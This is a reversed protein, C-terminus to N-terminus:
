GLLGLKRAKVAADERSVADIKFFINRVHWKVTGASLSLVRAISKNSYARAILHLIELERPSLRAPVGDPGPAQPEPARAPTERAGAARLVDDAFAREEASLGPGSAFQRVLNLAPTGEDLFSRLMRHQAAVALARRLTEFASVADGQAALAIACRIRLRAARAGHGRADCQEVLGRNLALARDLDGTAAAFEAEAWEAALPIEAWACNRQADYARALQQLRRLAEAAAPVNRHEAELGVREALSWAKLRDLGLQGALEESRDLSRLASAHRGEIRLLRAQILRAQILSDPVGMLEVLQLHELLLSEAEELDNQEYLAAIMFGATLGAFEARGIQTHELEEFARAMVASAQRVAGQTLFSFAMVGYAVVPTFVARDAAVTQGASAEIDRAREFEGAHVLAMALVNRVGFAVLSDVDPQVNEYPRIADLIAATDDRRIFYWGRLMAAECRLAPAAGELNADIAALMWQVEELEGCGLEAWAACILLELRAVLVDRRVQRIWKRVLVYAGTRIMPRAVREILEVCLAIDGAYRLHRIAEAYLGKGAFWRGAAANITTLENEPLRRLRDTLFKAFLRHFRYWPEADDSEIPVVFLNEAEFKRLLTDSAPNATILECLERNFRRCASIRVLFAVEEAAINAGLCQEFYAGVFDGPRPTCSAALTELCRRSDTAKRMSYALLQVGAAWGDTLDHVTRLDAKELQALGQEQLFAATERADFRLDAFDLEIVQDHARLDILDLPPVIRSTVVLQLNPPAWRLLKDVLAPIGTAAVAHFDELVLVVPRAYQDLDNVVAALFPALSNVGGRNVIAKADAGLVPDLAALGALLYSPFQTDDDEAGLGYWVVGCGQAVLEKRWLTVLSTKGSGAPGVILTLKRNRKARLQALLRDRALLRRGQPPALKTRILPTFSEAM